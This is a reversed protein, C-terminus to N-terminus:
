RALLRKRRMKIEEKLIGNLRLFTTEQEVQAENLGDHKRKVGGVRQQQQAQYNDLLKIASTRVYNQKGGLSSSSAPSEVSDQPQRHTTTAGGGVQM